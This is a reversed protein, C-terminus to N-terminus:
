RVMMLRLGVAILGISLSRIIWPGSLRSSYHAGVQAGLSVGIVLPVLPVLDFRLSGSAIHVIVGVFVTIVLVFHSTATAIHTPFRLVYVLLPVHLIGGGIGFINSILGVLLSLAAGLWQNYHGQTIRTDIYSHRTSRVFLYMSVVTLFGGFLLAFWTMSLRATLRAGYWAGPLAALAFLIGSRYDIRRSRAYAITGSASNFLVAVLSWATLSEPNTGRYAFLLIPMLIFGGGAGILTGIAGVLGGVLLWITFSM